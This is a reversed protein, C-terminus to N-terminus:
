ALPTFGGSSPARPVLSLGAAWFWPGMNHAAKVARTFDPPGQIALSCTGRGVCSRSILDLPWLFSRMVPALVTEAWGQVSPELERCAWLIIWVPWSCRWISGPVGGWGRGRSAVFGAEWLGQNNVWNTLVTGAHIWTANPTRGGLSQTYTILLGLDMKGTWHWTDGTQGDGCGPPDTPRSQFLGTWLDAPDRIQCGVWALHRSLM